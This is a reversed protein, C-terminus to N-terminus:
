WSGSMLQEKIDDAIDDLSENENYTIFNTTVTIVNDGTNMFAVAYAVGDVDSPILWVQDDTEDNMVYSKSFSVTSSAALVEVGMKANIVSAIGTIARNKMYARLEKSSKGKGIGNKIIKDIDKGSFVVKTKDSLNPRTNGWATVIDM